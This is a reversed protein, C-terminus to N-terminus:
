RIKRVIPPNQSGIAYVKSPNQALDLVLEALQRCTFDKHESPLVVNASWLIEPEFKPHMILHLMGFRLLLAPGGGDDKTLTTVEITFPKGSKGVTCSLLVLKKELVVKEDEELQPNLQGVWTELFENVRDFGAKVQDERQKQLEQAKLEQKQSELKQAAVDARNKLFAQVEPDLETM